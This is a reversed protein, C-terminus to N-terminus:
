SGFMKDIDDQSPTGGGFLQDIDGQSAPGEVPPRDEAPAPGEVSPRDETPPSAVSDGGFLQDISDQSAPGSEGGGGFLQDISDQSAPGSDGDGGFLQDISDQSAPESPESKPAPSATDQESFNAIVEDAARQKKGSRDYKADPDFASFRRPTNREVVPSDSGMRVMLTGMRGQITEILDNVSALQQATIDQVQLAIMIHNMKERVVDISEVDTRIQEGVVRRHNKKEHHIMEIKALLLEDKGRLASRLLRIMRADAKGIAEVHETAQVIHEKLQWLSTLSSDALDLIETTAMETAQTVSELRSSANPMMRHTSERISANIEDLLSSIDKLFFFMEELFPVARQGLVFLARLEDLRGLINSIQLTSMAAM